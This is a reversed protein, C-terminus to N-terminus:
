TGRSTATGLHARQRRLQSIESALPQSEHFFKLPNQLVSRHFSRTALAERQRSDGSDGGGLRAAACSM